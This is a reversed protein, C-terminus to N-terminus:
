YKYLTVYFELTAPQGEFWIGGLNHSGLKLGFGSAFAARLHMGTTWSGYRGEHISAMLQWQENIQWAPIVSVSPMAQSYFYYSAYLGLSFKRGPLQQRFGLHLASPLMFSYRGGRDLGTWKQLSDSNVSFVHEGSEFMNWNAGEYTWSSDTRESIHNDEFWIMGFDDLMLYFKWWETERAYYLDANFGKGKWINNHSNSDALQMSIDGHLSIQSLDEATQIGADRIDTEFLTSGSVAGVAVGAQHNGRKWHLGLQLSQTSLSRYYARFPMEQGISGKNGYFALQFATKSFEIEQLQNTSFSVSYHWTSDRLPQTIGVSIKNVFGGLNGDKKLGKLTRDKLQRDLYKGQLASMLFENSVTNSAAYIAWSASFNASDMLQPPQPQQAQLKLSVTFLLLIVM